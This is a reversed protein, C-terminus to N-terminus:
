CNLVKGTMMEYAVIGLAWWDVSKGYNEEELIEPALDLFLL